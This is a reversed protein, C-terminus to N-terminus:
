ERRNRHLGVVHDFPACVAPSPHGPRPFGHPGPDHRGRLERRAFGARPGPRHALPLERVFASLPWSCEAQHCTRTPGSHRTGIHLFRRAGCLLSGCHSDPTIPITHCDRTRRVGGRGLRMPRYRHCLSPSSDFALAEPSSQESEPGPRPEPPFTDHGCSPLHGFTTASTARSEQRHCLPQGSRM